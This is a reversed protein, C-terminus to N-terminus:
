IIPKSISAFNSNLNERISFMRKKVDSTNQQTLIITPNELSLLTNISDTYNNKFSNLKTWGVFAYKPLFSAWCSESIVWITFSKKIGIFIIGHSIM